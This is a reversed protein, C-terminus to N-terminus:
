APDGPPTAKRVEVRTDDLPMNAHGWLFDQVPNVAGNTLAQMHGHRYQGAKWGQSINCLGQPYDPTLVV